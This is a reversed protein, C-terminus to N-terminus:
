GFCALEVRDEVTYYKLILSPGIFGTLFKVRKLFKSYIVCKLAPNLAERHKLQALIRAAVPSKSVSREAQVRRAMEAVVGGGGAM